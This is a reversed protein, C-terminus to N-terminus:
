AGLPRMDKVFYFREQDGPLQKRGLYGSVPSVLEKLMERTAEDTVYPQYRANYHARIEVSVFANRGGHITQKSLEKITQIIQLRQQLYDEKQRLDIEWQQILTKIKADADTGFPPIQLYVKLDSLEIADEHKMKLEVLSQFTEPRIVNMKHGIAIKNAHFTIKGAAVILQVCPEYEEPTLWKPALKHLQTSPDGGVTGKATAKCEGVIPYPQNAYFDLGGAGGTADPDLSAEARGLTNSFGLEILGKRVLKEFTHGDSSNGVESIKSAWDHFSAAGKVVSESTTENDNQLDDDNSVSEAPELIAQKAAAFEDDSLVPNQYSVELYEPLPLFKYLQDCVPETDISRAKPLEHVKLFSLFLKGRTQLHNLLASKNWITRDSIAAIAEEDVIQQCFVCQAWYRAMVSDDSPLAFQKLSSLVEPRYQSEAQISGLLHRCPLLVFSKDPVIFRETVAVISQGQGSPQSLAVVDLEPLCLSINLITM